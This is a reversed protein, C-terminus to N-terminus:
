RAQLDCAPREQLDFKSRVSPQTNQEIMLRRVDNYLRMSAERTSGQTRSKQMIDLLSIEGNPPRHMNSDQM